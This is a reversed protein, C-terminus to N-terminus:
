MHAFPQELNPRPSGAWLGATIRDTSVTRGPNAALITLFARERPTGVSVPTGDEIVEVGLIRFETMFEM